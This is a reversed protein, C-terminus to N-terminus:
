LTFKLLWVQSWTNLDPLNYILQRYFNYNPISKKKLEGGWKM